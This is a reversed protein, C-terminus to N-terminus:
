EVLKPLLNTIASCITVISDTNPVLYMNMTTSIIKFNKLREIAREVHIRVRSLRRGTEIEKPSLQSKGKTFAPIALQAGCASLEDSILFGRDALVLDGHELLQLFGSRQTIVKDSVRGGFARSVFSISGNPSIGVLIKITNHSKYNSWTMARATFNGPREIFVEFCDIIVRCNKYCNKIVKPMFRVVEEKEPWHILFSLKQALPPLASNILHSVHQKSVGFRFALDQNVLGLRLKMLVLM